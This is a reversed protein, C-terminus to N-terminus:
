HSSNLRTSTHEETREGPTVAYGVDIQVFQQGEVTGMSLQGRNGHNARRRTKPEDFHRVAADHLAERFFGLLTLAPYITSEEHELRAYEVVDVAVVRHPLAFRQLRECSVAFENGIRM